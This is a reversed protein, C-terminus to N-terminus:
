RKIFLVKINPDPIVFQDDTIKAKIEIDELKKGKVNKDKPDFVLKYKWIFHAMLIYLEKLAFQWGPCMRPGAGFTVLNNNSKKFKGNDDKFNDLYVQDPGINKSKNGWYNKNYHVGIANIVFTYGKPINYGNVKIDKKAVRPFMTFAPLFLRLIEHIFAQFDNLNENKRLEDQLIKADYQGNKFIAALEDYMRQQIDQYRCINVLLSHISANTTDIAANFISIIDFILENKTYLKNKPEDFSNNNFNENLLRTFFANKNETIVKKNKDIFDETWRCMRYLSSFIQTDDNYDIMGDSKPPKAGFLMIPAVKQSLETTAGDQARFFSTWIPDDM